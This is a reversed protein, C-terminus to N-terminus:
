PRGGTGAAAARRRRRAPAADAGRAARLARKKPDARHRRRNGERQRARDGEARCADSCYVRPKGPRVGADFRGGCVRCRAATAARVVAPGEVDAAAGAGSARRRASGRARCADSCYSSALAHATFPGGCERCKAAFGRARRARQSDRVSRAYGKKRCEDSCYRSRATAREFPRGCEKCDVRLRSRDRAPAASYRAALVARNEPDAGYRRNYELNYARRGKARCADSCYVRAAGRGRGAAPAAAAAAALSRSCVRCRPAAGKGGRGKGAGQRSKRAGPAARHHRAYGKKRCPGSCYRAASGPARFPRGCERCEVRRGRNIREDARVGCRACYRLSGFLRTAPARNCVQCVSAGGM